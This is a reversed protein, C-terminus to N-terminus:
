PVKPRRRNGIGPTPIRSLKPTKPPINLLESSRADDPGRVIELVKKQHAANLEQQAKMGTRLDLAEREAIERRLRDQKSQNLKWRFWLGFITLGASVVLGLITMTM